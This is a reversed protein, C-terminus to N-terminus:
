EDWELITNEWKWPDYVERQRNYSRRYAAAYKATKRYAQETEQKATHRCEDSCFNPPRGAGQVLHPFEDGCQKCTRTIVSGVPM